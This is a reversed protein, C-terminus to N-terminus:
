KKGYTNIPCTFGGGTIAHTKFLDVGHIRKADVEVMYKDNGSNFNPEVSVKLVRKLDLLINVQLSVHRGEDFVGGYFFVRYQGSGYTVSFNTVQLSHALETLTGDRFRHVTGFTLDWISPINKEWSEHIEGINDLTDGFRYHGVDYTEPVVKEIYGSEVLWDVFHTMESSSDHRENLYQKQLITMDQDHNSKVMQLVRDNDEAWTRDRGYGLQFIQDKKVQM